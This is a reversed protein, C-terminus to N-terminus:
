FLLAALELQAGPCLRMYTIAVKILLPIQGPPSFMVSDAMDVFSTGGSAEVRSPTTDRSDIRQV